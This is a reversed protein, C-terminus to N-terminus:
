YSLPTKKIKKDADSSVSGYGDFELQAGLGNASTLIDEKLSFHARQESANEYRGGHVIALEPCVEACYGCFICRGMNITYEMVEKRSNEDIRTEMRICNAICIKECLGCGICREEGSELLRLLKHVARYRPGIPLKEKPYQVTAMENKFLARYMIGFTIRLGTFLEGKVSRTAVQKFAEWSTKPYNDEQICVYDESINRNKFEKLEM